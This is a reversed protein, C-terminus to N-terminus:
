PAHQITVLTTNNSSGMNGAADFARAILSFRTGDPIQSTDRSVSYPPTIDEGVVFTGSDNAALFQVGLVGVNDAADASLTVVGNLQANNTPSTMTVTPMTTEPGGGTASGHLIRFADVAVWSNGGLADGTVRITFEHEGDPLGELRYIEAQPERVASYTHVHQLYTTTGRNVTAVGAACTCRYGIWSIGTGNFRVTVSDGTNRAARVSGGSVSPDHVEIWDGNYRVSFDNEQVLQESQGDDIEFADVVVHAVNDNLSPFGPLEGLVEIMLTHETNALGGIRFIDAQPEPTEAQMWISTLFRNDLYVRAPGITGNSRYGIWKIATGTFTVRVMANSSSAAAVSGGSVASGDVTQWTGQYSVSPHNQEIRTVDANSAPSIFTCLALVLPSLWRTLKRM